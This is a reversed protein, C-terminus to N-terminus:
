FDLIMDFNIRLKIPKSRTKSTTTTQDVNTIIAKKFCEEELKFGPYLDVAKIFPKVTRNTIVNTSSM